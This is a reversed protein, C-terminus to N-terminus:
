GACTTAKLIWPQTSIDLVYRYSLNAANMDEPIISLGYSGDPVHRIYRSAVVLAETNNGMGAIKRLTPIVETPIGWGHHIRVVQDGNVIDIQAHEAM